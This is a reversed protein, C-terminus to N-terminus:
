FNCLCSLCLLCVDICNSAPGASMVTEGAANTSSTVFMGAAQEGFVQSLYKYAEKMMQQQFEAVLGKSAEKSMTESVGTAIDSLSSFNSAIYDATAKIGEKMGEKMFSWVGQYADSSLWNEQAVFAEIKMSTNIMTLYDGIGIGEPAECCNQMGGVAIKCFSKDDELIPNFISCDGNDVNEDGGSNDAGDSCKMDKGAYQLVQLMAVAEAFHLNDGDSPKDVCNGDLCKIDGECILNEEVKSGSDIEVDYGCDYTDETVYCAGSDGKAGEVCESKIYGCNKDDELRKCSNTVDGSDFCEEEGNINKWCLKGSTFECSTDVRVNQCFKSIGPIPLHRYIM